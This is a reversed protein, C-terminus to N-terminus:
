PLALTEANAIQQRVEKISENLPINHRSRLAGMNAKLGSAAVRQKLRALYEPTADAGIFPEDKTRTLLGTTQYGAAKIQKLTEDFSWTTWPRNFCGIPLRVGAALLPSPLSALATAAGGAITHRLFERRDM